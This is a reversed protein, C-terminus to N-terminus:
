VRGEMIDVGDGATKKLAIGGLKLWPTSPATSIQNGVIFAQDGWLLIQQRDIRANAICPIDGLIWLALRGRFRRLMHKM